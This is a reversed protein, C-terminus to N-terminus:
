ILYFIEHFRKDFTGVNTKFHINLCITGFGNPLENIQTPTKALTGAILFYILRLCLKVRSVHTKNRHFDAIPSSLFKNGFWRVKGMNWQLITLQIQEVWQNNCTPLGHWDPSKWVQPFRVRAVFHIMLQCDCMNLWSNRDVIRPSYDM